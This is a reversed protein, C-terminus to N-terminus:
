PSDAKEFAAVSEVHYTQPFMDVPQVDILRYGSEVLRRADRALTAPDCSVYVIKGPAREVLAVLAQPKMGARPPDIVAADVQGPPLAAEITGVRLDVNAFGALNIEADRVAPAYIEVATVQGAREALFATFLGVGSYLDLVREGGSLALRDLVLDVLTEAQPLNVQFFSGGTVQFQREKVAYHVREASAISAEDDPEGNRGGSRAILREGGSGIQLRVREGRKFHESRLSDLWEGLEPRIIHCEDLPIVTRDDSGVFGLRGASAVHFTAHSRYLWPDPSAITPHVVADRLGGIRAMQEVVVDRKFRLQAAYDIHQWHCGGCVGFHFCRPATREPAERIVDVIEAFAYSRKDQTVRALVREGPIGSPVFFPRGDHRGLARGGHTMATLELDIIETM